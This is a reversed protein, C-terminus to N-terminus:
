GTERLRDATSTRRELLGIVADALLDYAFPKVFTADAAQGVQRATTEGSMVIVPINPRHKRVWAVLGTGDMPGPMRLDTCLLCIREDSELLRLASVADRAEVVLLERERLSEALCFRLLTDDEVLLIADAPM